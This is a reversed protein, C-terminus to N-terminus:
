DHLLLSVPVWGKRWYCCRTASPSSGTVGAGFSQWRNLGCSKLPCPCCREFGPGLRHPGSCPFATERSAPSTGPVRAGMRRGAAVQELRELRGRLEAVERRLAREESSEAERVLVFSFALHGGRRASWAVGCAGWMVGVRWASSAQVQRPSRLGGQVPADMRGWCWPTRAAARSAAWRTSVAMPASPSAPGANM